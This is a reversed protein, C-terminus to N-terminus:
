IDSSTALIVRGLRMNKRRNFLGMDGQRGHVSRIQSLKHKIYNLIRLSALFRPIATLSM